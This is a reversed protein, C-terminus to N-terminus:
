PACDGRVLTWILWNVRTCNFTCNLIGSLENSVFPPAMLRRVSDMLTAM